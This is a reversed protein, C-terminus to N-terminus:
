FHAIQQFFLFIKGQLVHIPRGVKERFKEEDLPGLPAAGCMAYNLNQFYEAKVAPHAYLFIVTSSYRLTILIIYFTKASSM